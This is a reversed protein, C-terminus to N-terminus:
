KLLGKDLLAKDDSQLYINGLSLKSQIILRDLLLDEDKGNVIVKIQVLDSIREYYEIAKPINREVGLGNEYMFGIYYDSHHIGKESSKQFLEFAKSYQKAELLKIGRTLNLYDKADGGLCTAASFLFSLICAMGIKTRKDDLMMQVTRM